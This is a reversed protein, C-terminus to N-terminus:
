HDKQDAPDTPPFRLLILGSDGILAHENRAVILDADENRRPRLAFGGEPTYEVVQDLSRLAEYFSQLEDLKADGMGRGGTAVFELHLYILASLRHEAHEPQVTPWPYHSLAHHRIDM